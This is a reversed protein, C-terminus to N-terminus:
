AINNIIDNFTGSPRMAQSALEETPFYYGGIDMPIGQTNNL